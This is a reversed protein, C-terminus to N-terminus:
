GSLNAQNLDLRRRLARVKWVVWANQRGLGGIPFDRQSKRGHRLSNVNGAQGGPQRIANDM